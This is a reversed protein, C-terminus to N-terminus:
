GGYLHCLYLAWTVSEPCRKNQSGHKSTPHPASTLGIYRKACGERVGTVPVGFIIVTIPDPALLVGRRGAEGAVPGGTIFSQPKQFTGAPPLAAVHVTTLSAEAM